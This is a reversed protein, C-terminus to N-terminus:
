LRAGLDHPKTSYASGSYKIKDTLCVCGLNTSNTSQRCCVLHYFAFLFSLEADCLGSGRSLFRAPSLEMGHHETQLLPNHCDVLCLSFEFGQYVVFFSGVDHLPFGELFKQLLYSINTECFNLTQNAGVWRGGMCVYVCAYVCVCVCACVCIYVNACM